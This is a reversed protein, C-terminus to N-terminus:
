GNIGILATRGVPDAELSFDLDPIRRIEEMFAHGDADFDDRAM